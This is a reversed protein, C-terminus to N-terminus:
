RFRELSLFEIPHNTNGETALNALIEGLVPVFKFGHGSLGAAIMVRNDHAPHHDIIFHGDPSNTYLCTQLGITPGVAQPLYAALANRLNTEDEVRISRDVTYVTTTEGPLHHAVKMGASGSMMPFGYHLGGLNDDVAWVPFTGLQFHEPEAPVFWGATQRTVSLDVGLDSVLSSTWPGAAFIIKEAHYSERDTRVTVGANSANWELVHEHVHLQASARLALQVHTSIALEPVIVGMHPEFLAMYGRPIHLQPHRRRLEDRDILEHALGHAQASQCSGNILEGNPPGIVLGGTQHFLTCREVLDDLERWLALSRLLLPVYDPHEYYCARFVRSEGHSSGQAHLLNFQEIGLVRAGRRALHFLAASGVGGIGVVIVDYSNSM